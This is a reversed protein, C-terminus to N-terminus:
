STQGPPLIVPNYQNQLTTFYVIPPVAAIRASLPKGYAQIALGVAVVNSTAQLGEVVNAAIAARRGYQNLNVNILGNAITTRSLPPTQFM